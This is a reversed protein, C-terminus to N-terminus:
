SRRDCGRHRVQDAPNEMKKKTVRHECRDILAANEDRKEKGQGKSGAVQIVFDAIELEVTFVVFAGIRDGKALARRENGAQDNESERIKTQNQESTEIQDKRWSKKPRCNEKIRKM